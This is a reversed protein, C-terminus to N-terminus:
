LFGSLDEHFGFTSAGAKVAPFYPNRKDSFSVAPVIYILSIM